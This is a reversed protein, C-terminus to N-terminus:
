LGQLVAVTGPLEPAVQFGGKWCQRASRTAKAKTIDLLVGSLENHM